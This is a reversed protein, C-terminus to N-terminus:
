LTPSYALSAAACPSHFRRDVSAHGAAWSARLWEDVAQTQTIVLIGPGQIRPNHIDGVNFSDAFKIDTHCETENVSM